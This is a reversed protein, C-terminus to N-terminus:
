PAEDFTRKYIVTGNGDLAEVAAGGAPPNAEVYVNDRVPASAIV